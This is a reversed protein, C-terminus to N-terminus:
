AALGLEKKLQAVIKFFEGRSYKRNLIHFDKNVLGVCGFCYDCGFCNSCYLLFNGQSCYECEICNSCSSCNRCSECHTLLVSDRCNTSYTSKHCRECRQCYVCDICAVCDVVEVCGANLPAQAFSKRLQDLGAVFEAKTM